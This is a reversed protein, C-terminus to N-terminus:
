PDKIQSKKTNPQKFFQNQILGLVSECFGCLFGCRWGVLKGLFVDVETRETLKDFM